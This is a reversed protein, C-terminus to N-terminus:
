TCVRSRLLGACLRRTFDPSRPQLQDLKGFTIQAKRKRPASGIEYRSGRLCARAQLARAKQYIFSLSKMRPRTAGLWQSM